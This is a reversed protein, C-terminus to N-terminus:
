VKRFERKGSIIQKLITGLWILSVSSSVLGGAILGFWVGYMGLDLIYVLFYAVPIVIILLRLLIGILAPIPYGVAQFGSRSIIAIMAFLFTFELIRTQKVAYNVVEPIDSFFSFIWPALLVMGLAIVAVSIAGAILASHWVKRMREYNGRGGNQGMITILASGLAFSPMLVAQDFRGCLSFATLALPDIDTVIRNLFLFSVSMLMMGLAQPLGISLIKGIVSFRINRLNWHIEMSVKKRLFPTFAYILSIFQAVSTAAGAGAVGWGLVFIFIPDLIINLGTGIIMINMIYKVQGEGQLIGMVVNVIYAGVAAPIIFRIYALANAAYDGKAGLLSVIENDFMYSFVVTVMSFLLAIILSSEATVGLVEHNKEGIARAVLSSTGTMLGGALAMALFMVPFVFGVGGVISPDSLDIRSIFITDTINYLLQVIMGALMPVALKILVPLVPGEFM